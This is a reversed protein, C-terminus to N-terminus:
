PAPSDVSNSNIRAIFADAEEDPLEVRTTFAGIMAAYAKVDEKSWSPPLVQRDGHFNRWMPGSIGNPMSWGEAYHLRAQSLWTLPPDIMPQTTLIYITKM